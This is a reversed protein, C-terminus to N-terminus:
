SPNQGLRRGSGALSLIGIALLLLYLQGPLSTLGLPTWEGIETRPETATRLLFRPLRSRLPKAAALGCTIGLVDLHVVAGLSPIPPGKRDRYREVARVGIWLVLVGVGALVGGHLNVWGAYSFPYRGSDTNVGM